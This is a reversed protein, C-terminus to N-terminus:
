PQGAEIASITAPELMHDYIRIEDVDGGRVYQYGSQVQMPSISRSFPGFQDLGSDLVAPQDKSAVLKGDIYLAIGKTEDWSFAINTWQVPAPFQDMRYSVRVRALNDDTVFADIGHGNWDIRLWAMNWSTHDFYGVRFIPFQMGGLPTRARWNFSLTGRQAYINSAAHWSLVQEGESQIYPGTKPDVAIKTKDDFNPRPDGKAFDATFGKDATLAFLLGDDGGPAAFSEIGCLTLAAFLAAVFAVRALLHRM